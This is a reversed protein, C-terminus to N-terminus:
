IAAGAGIALGTLLPGRLVAAACCGPDPGVQAAVAFGLGFGTVFATLQAAPM